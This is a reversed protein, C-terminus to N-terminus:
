PVLHDQCQVIWHFARLCRYMALMPPKGMAKIQICVHSFFEESACLFGKHIVVQLHRILALFSFSAKFPYITDEVQEFDPYLKWSNAVLYSLFFDLFRSLM